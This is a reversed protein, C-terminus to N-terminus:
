SIYFLSNVNIYNYPTHTHTYKSFILFFIIIIYKNLMHLNGLKMNLIHLTWYSRYINLLIYTNWIKNNNKKKSKKNFLFM